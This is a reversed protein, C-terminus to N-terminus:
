PNCTSFKESGGGADCGFSGYEFPVFGTIRRFHCTQECANIVWSDVGFANDNITNEKLQATVRWGLNNKDGTPFVLTLAYNSAKCDGDKYGFPNDYDCDIRDVGNLQCTVAGEFTGQVKCLSAEFLIDKNEAQWSSILNQAYSIKQIAEVQLAKYKVRKMAVISMSTLIGMLSIVLM